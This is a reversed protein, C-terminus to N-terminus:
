RRPQARPKPSQFSKILRWVTWGAVALVSLCALTAFPHSAFHDFDWTLEHEGDHGPHARALAPAVFAALILLSRFRPPKM